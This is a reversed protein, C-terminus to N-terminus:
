KLLNSSNSSIIMLNDFSRNGFSSEKKKLNYNKYITENGFLDNVDKYLIVKGNDVLVNHLIKSSNNSMERDYEVNFLNKGKICMKDLNEVTKLKSSNLSSLNIKRKFDKFDRNNLNYGSKVSM